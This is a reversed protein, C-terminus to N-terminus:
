GFAPVGIGDAWRQAHALTTDDPASPWEVFDAGIRFACPTASPSRSARFSCSRRTSARTRSAAPRSFFGRGQRRHTPTIVGEELAPLVSARSSVSSVVAFSM